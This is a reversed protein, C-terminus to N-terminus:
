GSTYWMNPIGLDRWVGNVEGENDLGLIPKCRNVVEDGCVRRIHDCM